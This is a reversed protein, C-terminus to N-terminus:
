ENNRHKTAYAPFRNLMKIDQAAIIHDKATGSHKVELEDRLYGQLLKEFEDDDCKYKKQQADLTKEIIDSRKKEPEATANTVMVFGREAMDSRSEATQVEEASAIGTYPLVGAGCLASAARGRWSTMANEIPNTLDAGKAGDGTVGTGTEFKSGYIPSIMQGKIVVISGKFEIEVEETVPVLKGDVMHADHLIQIKGAVTTYLRWVKRKNERDGVMQSISIVYGQYDAMTKNEPCGHWAPVTKLCAEVQEPTPQAEFMWANERMLDRAM